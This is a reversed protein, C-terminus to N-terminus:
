TSSRGFVMFVIGLVVVVLLIGVWMGAKFIGEVVQCGASAMAVLLFLELRLLMNRTMVSRWGRAAAHQRRKRHLTSCTRLWISRLDVEAPTAVGQGVADAARLVPADAGAAALVSAPLATFGLYTGLSTFPIAIGAMVIAISMVILPWSARSQLFPIRNTRIIHIILTQTLLSEVFWGTQFLSQSSGRNPHSVNWCGFVYLM